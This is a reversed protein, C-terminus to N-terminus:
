LNKGPLAKFAFLEEGPILRITEVDQFGADHLQGILEDKGPLRGCTVTAAGWLNLVEVGLSGEQCCTILLLFGGPKIFQRIHQLLSVRSEVPFYYVNNYLTVIDYCEGPLKLRIDGAEIKVRAELGWKSINRRAVDAVDSQLELGLATLSPNRNAAYKIYIGSGCGIELLSAVGSAPFFRDIAEAQFAEMIRSSRAIIEGDQDGLDWLEGNRLKGPTQSILKSHLGAAEQLLALSADNQPLALKRALGKLAYGRNDRGLYGLRVGLHLWADLAERAKDGTCYVGALHEFSKPEDVLLEFLGCEKAAVIYNLQYFPKLLANSGKLAMFQDDMVLRLFPRLSM